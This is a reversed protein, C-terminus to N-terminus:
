PAPAGRVITWAEYADGTDEVLEKWRALQDPAVLLGIEIIDLHADPDRCVDGPNVSADLVVVDLLDEASHCLEKWWRGAWSDEGYRALVAETHTVLVGHASSVARAAPPATIGGIVIANGLQDLFGVAATVAETPDPENISAAVLRTLRGLRDGTAVIDDTSYPEGVRIPRRHYVSPYPVEPSSDDDPRTPDVM